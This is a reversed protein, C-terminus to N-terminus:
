TSTTSELYMSLLLAVETDADKTWRLLDSKTPRKLILFRLVLGRSSDEEIARSLVARDLHLSMRELDGEITAELAWFLLRVQRINLNEIQLRKDLILTNARSETGDERANIRDQESEYRSSSLVAKEMVALLVDGIGVDEGIYLKESHPVDSCSLIVEDLCGLITREDALIAKMTESSVRSAELVLKADLSPDVYKLLLPIIRARNDRIAAHLHALTIKLALEPRLALLERAVEPVESDIALSFLSLTRERSWTSFSSRSLLLLFLEPNLIAVQLQEDIIEVSATYKELLLKTMDVRGRSVAVELATDRQVGELQYRNLLLQTSLFYGHAITQILYHLSINYRMITVEELQDLLFALINPDDRGVEKSLMMEIHKTILSRDYKVYKKSVLFQFVEVDKITLLSDVLLSVVLRMDQPEGYIQILILLAQLCRLGSVYRRSIIGLQSDPPLRKKSLSRTTVLIYYVTTWDVDKNRLLESCPLTSGTKARMMRALYKTREYWFSNDRLLSTLARVLAIDRAYRGLNHLTEDNLKSCIERLSNSDLLEM